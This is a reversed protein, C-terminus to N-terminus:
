LPCITCHNPKSATNPPKLKETSSQLQSLNSQNRAEMYRGQASIVELDVHSWVQMRRPVFTHRSSRTRLRCTASHLRTIFSKSRRVCRWGARRM